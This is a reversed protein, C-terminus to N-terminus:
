SNSNRKRPSSFGDQGEQPLFRNVRSNLTGAAWEALLLAGGQGARSAQPM